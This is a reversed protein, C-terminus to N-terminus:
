YSTAMAFSTKLFSLVKKIGLNPRNFNVWSFAFRLNPKNLNAWSFTFGLNPKNVKVFGLSTLDLNPGTLNVWRSTLFVKNAVFFAMIFLNKMNFDEISTALSLYTIMAQSMPIIFYAMPKVFSFYNAMLSEFVPGVSIVAWGTFNSCNVVLAVFIQDTYYIIQPLLVTAMVTEAMNQTKIFNALRQVSELSSLKAMDAFLILITAQKVVKFCSCQLVVPMVVVVEFNFYKYDLLVLIALKFYSHQRSVKLIMAVIALEKSRQAKFAAAVILLKETFLAKSGIFALFDATSIVEFGVITLIIVLLVITRAKFSIFPQNVSVKTVIFVTLSLLRQVFASAKAVKGIILSVSAQAFSQFKIIVKFEAFLTLNGITRVLLCLVLRFYAIKVKAIQSVTSKKTMTASAVALVSCAAAQVLITDVISKQFCSYGITMM